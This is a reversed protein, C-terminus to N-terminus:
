PKFLEGVSLNNKLNEQKRGISAHRERKCQSRQDMQLKNQHGPHAMSGIKDKELHGVLQGWCWKTFSGARGTHNLIKDKDYASNGYASLDIGSSERKDQTQRNM